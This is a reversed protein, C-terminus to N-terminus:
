LKEATKANKDFIFEKGKKNVMVIQDIDGDYSNVHSYKLVKGKLKGEKVQWNKANTEKTGYSLIDFIGTNKNKKSM